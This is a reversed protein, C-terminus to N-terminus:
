SAVRREKGGACLLQAGGTFCSALRGAVGSAFMLCLVPREAQPLRQAFDEVAAIAPM